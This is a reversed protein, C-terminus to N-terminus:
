QVGTEQLRATLASVLRARTARDLSGMARDLARTYGSILEEMRTRLAPTSPVAELIPDVTSTAAPRYEISAENEVLFDHLDLAALAVGELDRYAELRREEAAVFGSDAREVLLDAQEAQLGAGAVRAVLADHYSQWDGTRVRDVFQGVGTWFTEVTPFQSANGLYVGALWQQPPEAAADAPRTAADAQSVVDAIAADALEHMRPLLEGPLPPMVVAPRVPEESEALRAQLIPWGVYGGVGVALLIVVLVIPGSLSRQRKFRPASPRDKPTRRQRTPAEKPPVIAEDEAATDSSVASFDMVEDTSEETEEMWGPPADPQFESMPKELALDDDGGAAMGGSFEMPSELALDDSADPEPTELALGGSLDGFDFGGEADEDDDPEAPPEDAAAAVPPALDLAIDGFGSDGSGEEEDEEEPPAPPPDALTLGLDFGGDEKKEEPEKKGEPEKKEVPKEVPARAKPASPPAVPPPAVPPAVFGEDGADRSLTHFIEHTKAPGWHDAQADYLQTEPGVAGLEIRLALADVSPIPVENGHSDIYAFRM